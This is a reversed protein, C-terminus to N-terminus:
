FKYYKAYDPKDLTLGSLDSVIKKQLDTFFTTAACNGKVHMGNRQSEPLNCFSIALPGEMAEVINLFSIQKKPKGLQYGGIVGRKSTLLGKLVLMRLIKANYERPIHAKESIETITCQRKGDSAAVYMMAHIAYNSKNSLMM